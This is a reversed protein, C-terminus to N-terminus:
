NESIAGPPLWPTALRNRCNGSVGIGEHGAFGLGHM